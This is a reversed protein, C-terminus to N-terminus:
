LRHLVLGLVAGWRWEQPDGLGGTSVNRTYMSPMTFDARCVQLNLWCGTFTCPGSEM